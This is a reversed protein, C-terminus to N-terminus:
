EDLNALAKRATEICADGLPTRSSRGMAIALELWARRQATTADDERVSALNLAANAAAARGTSTGSARGRELARAYATGAEAHRELALLCHGANVGAMAAVADAEPGERDRLRALVGRFRDLAPQLRDAKRDLHGALLEADLAIREGAEVGSSFGLAAVREIADRAGTEDGGHLASYARAYTAAAALARGPGSELTSAFAEADSAVTAADDWREMACLLKHLDCAAQVALERVWSEHSARGRTWASRLRAYAEERPGTAALAQGLRLEALVAFREVDGPECGTALVLAERYRSAADASRGARTAQEALGLACQVAALRGEPLPGGGGLALGRAYQAAAESEGALGDREALTALALAAKAAAMLGLPTAAPEAIRGVEELTARAADSEGRRMQLWGLNFAAVAAPDWGSPDGTRAGLDIARRWGLAAADDDGSESHLLGLNFAAQTLMGLLLASEADGGLALAEEYRQRARAPQGAEQDLIGLRTLVGARRQRGVPDPVRFSREVARAFHAVAEDRSGLARLKEGLHLSAEMVVIDGAEGTLAEGAALAARLRALRMVPDHETLADALRDAARRTPDPAAAGAGLRVLLRRVTAALRALFGEHARSPAPAPLLALHM